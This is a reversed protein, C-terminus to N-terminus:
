RIGPPPFSTADVSAGPAAGAAKLAQQAKRIAAVTKKDGARDFIAAFIGYGEFQDDSNSWVVGPGIGVRALQLARPLNKVPDAVFLIQALNAYMLGSNPINKLGLEALALAPGPRGQHQLWYATVYYAQEFHPDLALVLSISPLFVAFTSDFHGYYGDFLPELRNWLVDAAFVRLGGLYAYSTQGILRGTSAVGDPPASSAALGQGGILVAVILVLTVVTRLVPRDVAESM